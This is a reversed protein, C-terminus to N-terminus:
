MFAPGIKRGKVFVTSSYADLECSLKNVRNVYGM